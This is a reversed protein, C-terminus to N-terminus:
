QINYSVLLNTKPVTLNLTISQSAGLESVTVPGSYVTQTVNGSQKTPLTGFSTSVISHQTTPMNITFTVTKVANGGPYPVAFFLTIQGAPVSVIFHSGFATGPVIVPLPV